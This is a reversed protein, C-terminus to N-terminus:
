SVFFGLDVRSASLVCPNIVFCMVSMDSSYEEEGVQLWEDRNYDKQSWQAKM